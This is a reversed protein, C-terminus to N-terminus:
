QGDVNWGFVRTEHGSGVECSSFPRTVVSHNRSQAPDVTKIKSMGIFILLAM